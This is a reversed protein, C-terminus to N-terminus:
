NLGLGATTPPVNASVVKFILINVFINLYKFRMLLLELKIYFLM